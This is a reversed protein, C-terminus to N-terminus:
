RRRRIMVGIMGLGALFMATPEPTAAVAGAATAGFNQRWLNYDGTDVGNMGDGNGMLATEDAAGLNERWLAYDIADVSGDDNYDGDLGTVVATGLATIIVNDVRSGGMNSSWGIFGPFEDTIAVTHDADDIENGNVEVSIQLEDGIDFGDPALVTVKSNFEVTPDSAVGFIDDGLKVGEEFVQMQLSNFAADRQYIYAHIGSNMTSTVPLFAANNSTTAILNPDTGLHFSLFGNVTPSSTGRKGDFEVTFGNGALVNPDLALNYDVSIAGFRIVGENDGDTPVDADQVTQNVGGGSTRTPTHAYTQVVSGTLGNDNDGWDSLFPDGGPDSVGTVREFGDTILIKPQAIASAGLLLTTTLAVLVHLLNLKM